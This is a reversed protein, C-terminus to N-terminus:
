GICVFLHNTFSNHCADWSIICSCLSLEKLLESCLSTRGILDLRKSKSYVTYIQIYVTYKFGVITRINKAVNTHRITITTMTIIGHIKTKHLYRNSENIQIIIKLLISEILWCFKSIMDLSLMFDLFNLVL